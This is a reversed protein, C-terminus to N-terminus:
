TQAIKRTRLGKGGTRLVNSRDNLELWQYRAFDLGDILAQDVGRLKRGVPVQRDKGGVKVTVDTVHTDIAFTTGGLTLIIAFVALDRDPTFQATALQNAAVNEFPDVKLKEM